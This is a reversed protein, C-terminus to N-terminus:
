ANRVELKPLQPLVEDVMCASADGADGPLGDGAPGVAVIKDIGLAAAEALREVCREGPGVIGFRDIFAPTLAEAQPSRGRTHRRMDYVGHVKEFVAQQEADTPGAPSGHMVSFRAFTSMGGSALRRAVDVDPHAVVNLYAGLAIGDPDLGERERAERVVGIAWRLREPDAGVALLVRDAHLAAVRLVKPGTAAVEVPVKALDAPLWHIRSTEPTGALGLKAVTDSELPLEEGRLYAQLRRVYDELVSVPAPALGLHALASDGRGIGLAARGASEAQVTAISTATVAPHRTGPTTVGTGLELRPTAHAALALAIYPDGSLNQSDVVVMGDWGASEAWAATRAAFGPHAITAMWMAPGTM